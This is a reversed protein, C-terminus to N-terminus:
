AAEADITMRALKENLSPKGTLETTKTPSDPYFEELVDQTDDPGEEFAGNAFGARAIADLATQNYAMAERQLYTQQAQTLAEELTM